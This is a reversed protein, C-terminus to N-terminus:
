VVMFSNLDTYFGSFIEMPSSNLFLFDGGPGGGGRVILGCYVNYNSEASIFVKKFSATLRYESIEGKANVREDGNSFVHEM